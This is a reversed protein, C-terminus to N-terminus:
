MGSDRVNLKPLDIVDISDESVQYIALAREAVGTENFRFLGQIGTFGEISTLWDSEESYLSGIMGKNALVGALSVADYALVAGRPPTSNFNSRYIEEFSAWTGPPPAAFWGGKLSPEGLISEHQWLETGLLRVGSTEIDFYPFRTALSRLTRGGAAILVCDLPQGTDSGSQKYLAAIRRVVDAANAAKLEFYEIHGPPLGSADLGENFATAVAYGYDDYPVLAAMHRLGSAAAYSVIRRVQQHPTFGFVYVGDGAVSRDNSFSIIPVGHQRAVPAVALVSESFLPGILLRAGDDIAEGAARAAGNPTGSTDKILLTTDPDFYEFLALQAANLMARGWQSGDGTLPVLFAVIHKEEAGSGLPGVAQGLGMRLMVQKRALSKGNPLIESETKAAAMAAQESESMLALMAETTLSGKANSSNESSSLDNSQTVSATSHNGDQSDRRQTEVDPAVQQENSGVSQQDEDLLTMSRPPECGVLPLVLALVVPALARFLILLQPSSTKLV